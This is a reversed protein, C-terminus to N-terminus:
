SVDMLSASSDRSKDWRESLQLQRTDLGPGAAWQKNLVEELRPNGRGGTDAAGSRTSLGLYTCYKMERPGRVLETEISFPIQLSKLTHANTIIPFMVMQLHTEPQVRSLIQHEFVPTQVTDVPDVDGPFEM